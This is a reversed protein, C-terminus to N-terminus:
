GCAAKWPQNPIVPKMIATAIKTLPLQEVAANLAIAAKPMGYVVCSAEDQAITHAGSQRLQLLGSAGDKGMGTLLVGCTPIKYKAISSFLCDISPRHGSVEPGEKLKCRLGTARQVELHTGSGPAIYVKGAQLPAGDWAELIEPECSNNLRRAFASLFQGRMHQVVLTPPCNAPLAGLISQIAEVGGTSAGIAVLHNTRAKETCAGPRAAVQRALDTLATTANSWEVRACHSLKGGQLYNGFGLGPLVVFGDSNDPTSSGSGNNKRLCDASAVIIQPQKAQIIEMAEKIESTAALVDFGQNTLSTAIRSRRVPRGDVIVVQIKTM